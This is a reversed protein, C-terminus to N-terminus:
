IICVKCVHPKHVCTLGIVYCNYIQHPEFAYLQLASDVNEFLM